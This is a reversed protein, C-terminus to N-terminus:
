LELSILMVDENLISDDFWCDIFGGRMTANMFSVCDKKAPNEAIIYIMTKYRTYEDESKELEAKFCFRCGYKNKLHKLQM